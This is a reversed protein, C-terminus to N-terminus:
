VVILVSVFISVFGVWTVWGISQFKRLSAGAGVVLMGILSWWVTCAAHHSLANIGTSIALIGAGVCLVNGIIFLAGCVERYWIGGVHEAMDAVSHIGPHRNRFSGLLLAGYTNLAGWGIVSLSGPVAGLAYM